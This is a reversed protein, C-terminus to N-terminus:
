ICRELIMLGIFTKGLGVGDCFLVGGRRRAIQLARRYGDRQYKSLHGYIVSENAEWADETSERGSFYEHLSRAYVTFPDYPTIHPEIVKLLEENVPEGDKWVDEYWARLKEIHHQDTTLLNLELSRTLGSHTFNSSGVLAFDVLSSEHTSTLYLKAHFKAKTYVRTEINGSALAERLSQLPTLNDDSEKCLEISAESTNGLAKVLEGKTRRTTEDGMLVRSHQLTQWQEDLSLFGGVEFTGTAVDLTASQPLLRQLASLVTADARNDNITPLKPSM